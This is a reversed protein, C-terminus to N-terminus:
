KSPSNQSAQLARVVENVNERVVVQQGGVNLVTGQAFGLQGGGQVTNVTTSNVWVRHGDLRTFSVLTASILLAARVNASFTM